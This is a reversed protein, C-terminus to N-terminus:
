LGYESMDLVNNIMREVEALYKRRLSFIMAPSKESIRWKWCWWLVGEANFRYTKELKDEMVIRGKPFDDPRKKKANFTIEMFVKAAYGDTNCDRSFVIREAEKAIAGWRKLMRGSAPTHSQAEPPIYKSM